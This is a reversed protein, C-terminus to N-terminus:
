MKKNTGVTDNLCRMEEIRLTAQKRASVYADRWKDVEILEKKYTSELALVEMRKAYLDDSAEVTAKLDSQTKEPFEAKTLLHLKAELQALQIEASKWIFRSEEAREALEAIKAPAENLVRDINM